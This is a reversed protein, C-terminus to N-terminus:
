KGRGTRYCPEIGGGKVKDSSDPNEEKPSLDKIQNPKTDPKPIAKEPEAPM